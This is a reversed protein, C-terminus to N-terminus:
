RPGELVERALGGELDGIMRRLIVRRFAVVALM